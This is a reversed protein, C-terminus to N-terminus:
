TRMLQEVAKGFAAIATRGGLEWDDNWRSVTVKDALASRFDSEDMAVAFPYVNRTEQIFELQHDDIHEGLSAIRPVVLPRKLRHCVLMATSSGHTIVLQAKDFNDMMEAFSLFQRKQIREDHVETFGNQMVVEGPAVLGEDIANSIWKVLRNFPHHDTGVTVFIM